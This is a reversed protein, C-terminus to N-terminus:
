RSARRVDFKYSSRVSMGSCYRGPDAESGRECSGLVEMVDEIASAVREEFWNQSFVQLVETLLASMGGAAVVIHCCRALNKKWAELCKEGFHDGESGLVGSSGPM